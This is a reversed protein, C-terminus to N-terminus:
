KLSIKKAKTFFITELLSLFTSLFLQEDKCNLNFSSACKHGGGIGNFKKALSEAIIGLSIANNKCLTDSCRLSGKIMDDFSYALVLDCGSDVLFKAVSAQFSGIRVIGVIFSDFEYVNLRSFSKLKAIVESRDKKQLLFDQGWNLKAGKDILFCVNKITRENALILHKTDFLIGLLLLNSTIPDFTFGLNLLLSLVMECTSSYETDVYYHTYFQISEEALPHHDILVKQCSSNKVLYYYDGLLKPSGTDVVIILDFSKFCEPGSLEIGLFKRLNEAFSDLGEPFFFNIKSANNKKFFNGLAISSCLADIDALRHALICVNNGKFIDELNPFM